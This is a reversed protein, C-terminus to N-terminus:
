TAIRAFRRVVVLVAAVAMVIASVFFTWHPLQFFFLNSQLDNGFLLNNTSDLVTGPSLLTSWDGLGGSGLDIVVSSVLGPILVIAIIGATAYARRPTFAAVAMALGGLVGAALLSQLVIAPIKPVDEALTAGFDISLLLRGLFLVTQPFLLLLLVALFFGLMRGLSYDSRRLARAFYLAIVGNRQDRSFLEPAQAACFLVIVASISTFYSDYGIPAGTEFQERAGFRTALTLIGVIIVAPIIAIAGFVMPAIKARGGRGIGYASAFNHLILARVAATRGLRPGEYRRYGLDFISGTASAASAVMTPNPGTRETM